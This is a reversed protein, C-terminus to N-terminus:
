SNAGVEIGVMVDRFFAAIKQRNVYALPVLVVALTLACSGAAAIM